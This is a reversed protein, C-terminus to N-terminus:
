VSEILERVSWRDSGIYPYDLVNAVLGARLPNELIYRAVARGDEEARLVHEYYGEQWLSRGFRRSYARGSSEKASKVFIKLDATPTVGEVLAHAHDPMLCYALFSFGHSNATRHFQAIVLDVTASELFARNRNRTCFTLFYQQPGVYDLGVLRQPRSM